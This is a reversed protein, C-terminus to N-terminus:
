YPVKVTIILKGSKGKIRILEEKEGKMNQSHIIDVADITEVDNFEKLSEHFEDPSDL